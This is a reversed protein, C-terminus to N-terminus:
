TELVCNSLYIDVNMESVIVIEALTVLSLLPSALGSKSLEPAGSDNKTLFLFVNSLYTQLFINYIINPACRRGHRCHERPSQANATQEKRQNISNHKSPVPLVLPCHLVDALRLEHEPQDQGQHEKVGADEGGLVVALWLPEVVELLVGVEGEDAEEGELHQHLHVGEAEAAVHHGEEVSEVEEHDEAGDPLIEEDLVLENRGDTEGHESTDTEESSEFNCLLLTCRELILIKKLM